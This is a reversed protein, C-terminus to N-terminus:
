PIGARRLLERHVDTQGTLEPHFTAAVFRGQAVLVADGRAQALVEVDPGLRTIRPARIFVRGDAVFSDLQRGYANREITMDICGLSRQAPTVVTEALLIAGACTGLIAGDFAALPGFLGVHDLLRLLTTSEGGPLVVAALGALHEPRRVEVVSVGLTALLRQHAVYDGQLALVGVM